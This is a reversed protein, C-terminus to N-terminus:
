SINEDTQSKFLVPGYETGIHTKVLEIIEQEYLIMMGYYGDLIHLLM